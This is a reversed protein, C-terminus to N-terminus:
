YLKYFLINSTYMREFAGGINIVAAILDEEGDGDADKVQYDVVYGTIERTKWNTVLRNDDWILNYVEGKEFERARELASFTGQNKLIIVEDLGDRDFDRALVRSSYLGEV